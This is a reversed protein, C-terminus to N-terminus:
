QLYEEVLRRYPVYNTTSYEGDHFEIALSDEVGILLHATGASIKHMNGTELTVKRESDPVSPIMEQYLIRGYLVVLTVESDHFHGGRLADKVLEIVEFTRGHFQMRYLSGRKDKHLLEIRFSEKM